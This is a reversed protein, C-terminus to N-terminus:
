RRAREAGSWHAQLYALFGSASPTLSRDKLRVVGIGRTLAPQALPKLVLGASLAAPLVGGPVVALGVGAHVFQMVTAFQSVMVAHQLTLGAASAAGDLMRRTQAERPLSVMAHDAIDALALTKRAALPHSKPMVIHFAERGLALSTFEPPVDDVYTLGLDAVGSRVDDLVTGHVGERVQFEIRSRSARYGAVFGPLQTYAVSMVTSVIVQGRQEDAIDRMSEFSIRLDALIRNALAVFEQGAPTIEVKRTSRRFLEVGVAHEVRQLTRTLAPQSMGLALAAALFGGEEAITCVAQLERSSLDPILHMNM